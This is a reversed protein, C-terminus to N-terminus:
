KPVSGVCRVKKTIYRAVSREIRQQTVPMTAYGASNRIGNNGKARHVMATHKPMGTQLRRAHVIKAAIVRPTEGAAKQAAELGADEELNGVLSSRRWVRVM